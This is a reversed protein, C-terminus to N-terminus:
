KKFFHKCAFLLSYVFGKQKRVYKIDCRFASKRKEKQAKKNQKIKADVGKTLYDNHAKAFYVRSRRYANEKEQNFINKIFRELGAITKECYEADVFIPQNLMALYKEDDNDLEQIKEIVEDFNRYDACNIFANKNFITGVDSSGYYIPITDALFADTLKETIFGYHSTSEFCLTFKCKKQFDIKSNRNVKFGDPMNNLHTGCSEVRKYKSLKKFFDGRIKNESEHGCIFNAFYEKNQIIDSSFCRTKKALELISEHNELLFVPLRYNRDAFEIPYSCVSYDILNFDPIYNEGSLMIRVQPYKCYEYYNKFVSCVIYDPNKDVIEVIYNKQLLKFFTTENINFPTWLGLLKIKVTKM